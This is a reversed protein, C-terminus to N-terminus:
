RAFGALASMYYPGSANLASPETRTSDVLRANQTRLTDVQGPKM